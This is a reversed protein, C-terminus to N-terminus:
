SLVLDLRGSDKLRIADRTSDKQPIALTAQSQRPIRRWVTVSEEKMEAKYDGWTVTAKISKCETPILASLGMSSPFPTKRSSAAEPAAEDDLGTKPPILDIQEGSDEDTKEEPKAAFPALFGTLYCCPC